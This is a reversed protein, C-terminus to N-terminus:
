SPRVFTRDGDRGVRWGAGFVERVLAEKIVESPGGSRVVRGEALVIVRDALAALNLDHVVALVALRQERALRRVLAITALQHAPDLHVTPEDLLLVPAEQALAMALVVRQREGGSIQDIRRDALPTLDLLELARAVAAADQPGARGFADLRATRGLAVIERVSFPFLTELAQPVVAVHRAIAPRSLTALARGSIRVDGARLPVLGTLARILTSKGTGNPGVVSVVESEDVALSVDHLVLRDGYGASLGKAELASM